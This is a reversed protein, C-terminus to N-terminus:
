RVVKGDQGRVRRPHQAIYTASHKVLIQDSVFIDSGASAFHGVVVVPIGPQFLQPPSGSNEVAVQEGGGAVSFDAGHRTRM